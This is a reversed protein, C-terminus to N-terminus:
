FKQICEEQCKVIFYLWNLCHVYFLVRIRRPSLPSIIGWNFCHLLLMWYCFCIYIFIYMGDELSSFTLYTKPLTPVCFRLVHLGNSHVAHSRINSILTIFLRHGMHHQDSAWIKHMMESLFVSFELTSVAVLLYAVAEGEGRQLVTCMYVCLFWLMHCWTSPM